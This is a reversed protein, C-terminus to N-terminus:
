RRTKRAGAEAARGVAERRGQPRRHRDGAFLGAAAGDPFPLQERRRAPRCRPAPRCATSGASRWSTATAAGRRDEGARRRRLSLHRRAAHRGAHRRGQDARALHACLVAQRHPRRPRDQVGAGAARRGARDGQRAATEAATPTDHRLAKWLRRVGSAHEAAGLLVEISRAPRWTRACTATSRRRHTPSSTRSCRRWCRTTTIPWCRSWGPRAESSTPGAHRVADADAGLGPGQPLPLRAREGCRRLRHGDRRRPDAGPAAGAAVARLAQLAALTDRSAATWRTSRTSSCSTRCATTPWRKCCRRWPSRAPRRGARVGGRRSRGGGARLTTEYAFEVSGPCDLLSWADGLYTCHGLRIETTAPRNRPDAPRKVPAGAADMLAEFLTSKGSSYPGVLAVSRPSRGNETGSM